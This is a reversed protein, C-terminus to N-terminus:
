LNQKKTCVVQGAFSLDITAYKEWGVYNLGDRYFIELNRFKDEMNEIGGFHIVHDGLKPVFEFDNEDVVAIQEIQANWFPQNHIYRALALVNKLAPTEIMGPNQDGEAINGTIVPVRSTFKSSVPIKGANEDIYYNVGYKNIVRALPQKQVISIHVNGTADIYTEADQVYSNREISSEIRDLPIERIRDGKISDGFVGVLLSIIDDNDLFFLNNENDITIAVNRCTLNKQDQTTRSLLLIVLFLGGLLLIFGAIRVIKRKM